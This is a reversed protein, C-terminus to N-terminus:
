SQKLGLADFFAKRINTDVLATLQEKVKARLADIDKQLGEKLSAAVREEAIRELPNKSNYGDGKRELFNRVLGLVTIRPKKDGWQDAPEWGDRLLTGVADEVAQGTITNVQETLKEAVLKHVAKRVETTITDESNHVSNLRAFVREALTDVLEQQDFNIELRVHKGDQEIKDEVNTEQAMARNSKWYDSYYGDQMAMCADCGGCRESGYANCDEYGDDGPELYEKVPPLV